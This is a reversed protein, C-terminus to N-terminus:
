ELREFAEMKLHDVSLDFDQFRNLWYPSQELREDLRRIVHPDIKGHVKKQLYGLFYLALANEPAILDTINEVYKLQQLLKAPRKERTLRSFNLHYNMYAWIDELIEAPPVTDLDVGNFADKFDRALMDKGAEANKAMKSYVGSHFRINKFDSGKILGQSVMSDFLPTNPLPEVININYWDLDMAKSVDFTELIQRYTEGPFGIMLFARAHIQEHKRMVEAAKLFNEITGPKKVQRLIERSGSEIGLILGLCGSEVAASMLEDTCSAAIVGISSDWTVGLNQSAMGKFLEVSKKHDYLLDDDLFIVHEIGYEDKLMKIEDIVSQASRRRVGVGNFNRVSCFTCEARCGRNSLVTTIRTGKPKFCYFAGITGWQSLEDTNMLDHAPFVELDEDRPVLKRESLNILNGQNHIVVQSLTEVPAKRNVIRVFQKIALDGEYRFFFDVSELDRLLDSMTDKNAFSNTIHVGGTALPLDPKLRKIENCVCVMSPHTQSFMCTLGIFDPQYRNIEEALASKWIENFDFTEPSESQRCAKLIINNLNIINVQIGDERLHTALLGLGYPAVNVYRGRKGTSYNFMSSEADPPAVLLVREVRRLPFLRSLEDEAAKLDDLEFGVESSHLAVNDM